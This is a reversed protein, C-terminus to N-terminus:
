EKLIQKSVANECMKVKNRCTLRVVKQADLVTDDDIIFVLTARLWVGISKPVVM